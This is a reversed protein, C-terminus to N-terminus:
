QEASDDETEEIPWTYFILGVGYRFATEMSSLIDRVEQKGHSEGSYCDKCVVEWHDFRQPRWGETEIEAVAKIEAERLTDADVWANAFAGGVKGSEPNGEAPVVEIRVLFLDSGNERSVPEITDAFLMPKNM